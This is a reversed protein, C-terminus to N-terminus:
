NGTGCNKTKRITYKREEVATNAASGTSGTTALSSKSRWKCRHKCRRSTREIGGFGGMVGGIAAGVLGDYIIEDLDWKADKDYAARKLLPSIVSELAEEFGEGAASMATSALRSLAAQGAQTKAMKNIAKSIAQNIADDAVGKGFAKALPKAVNSIKETLVSVAASGLGYLVQQDLTAGAQRAEQTAGGFGRFAMPLLAGGGTAMGIAIDGGLQTLGVGVDVAFQGGRLGQKSEIRQASQSLKDADAYIEKTIVDQEGRALRKHFDIGDQIAAIRQELFEKEDPTISGDATYRALAEQAEKKEQELLAIKKRIEEPGITRMGVDNITALTSLMQSGYSKASGKFINTIRDIISPKEAAERKKAELETKRAEKRATNSYIGPNDEILKRAKDEETPTYNWWKQAWQELTNSAPASHRPSRQGAPNYKNAWENLTM